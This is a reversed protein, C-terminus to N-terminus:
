RQVKLMTRPKWRNLTCAEWGVTEDIGWAREVDDCEYSNHLVVTEIRKADTVRLIHAIRDLVEQSNERGEFRGELVLEKLNPVCTESLKLLEALADAVWRVSFVHECFTIHLKHLTEPLQGLLHTRLGEDVDSDSDSTPWSSPDGFLYVAAVKLHKLSKFGEFSVALGENGEGENDWDFFYEHDLCLEELWEEHPKLADRIEQTRVPIWIWPCGVEYILTRLKKCAALLRSFFTPHFKSCRLEISVVNSSQTPLKAMLQTVDDEPRNGLRHGYVRKVAPLTCCALFIDPPTAYRDDYGNIMIDTLETFGPHTDFPKQHAGIRQFLSLTYKDEDEYVTITMYLRRLKHLAPLLLTLVATDNIKEHLVLNFLELEEESSHAAAEIVPKLVNHVEGPSAPWLCHVARDPEENNYSLTFSRVLSAIGPKQLILFTFPLLYPIRAGIFPPGL